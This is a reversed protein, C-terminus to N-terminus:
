SADASMPDQSVDDESSESPSPEAPPEAAPEVTAPAPERVLVEPVGSEDRAIMMEGDLYTILISRRLEFPADRKGFPEPLDFTVVEESLRCSSLPLLEATYSLRQKQSGFELEAKADVDRGGQITVTKSGLKIGLSQGWFGQAFSSLANGLSFGGGYLFLALERTPSSLLGPAYSGSYKVTWAADILESYAPEDTPNLREVMSIMEDLKGRIPKGEPRLVEEGVAEDGLFDLLKAKADARLGVKADEAVGARLATVHRKTVPLASGGSRPISASFGLFSPVLPGVLGVAALVIVGLLTSRREGTQAAMRDLNFSPCQFL